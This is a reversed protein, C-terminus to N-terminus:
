CKREVPGGKLFHYRLLLCLTYLLDFVARDRSIPALLAELAQGTQVHGETFGRPTGPFLRVVEWEGRRDTRWQPESVLLSRVPTGTLTPDFQDQSGLCHRGGLVM